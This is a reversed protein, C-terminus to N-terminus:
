DNDKSAEAESDNSHYHNNESTAYQFLNAKKKIKCVEWNLKESMESLTLSECLMPVKLLYLNQLNSQIFKRNSLWSGILSPLPTTQTYSTRWWSVHKFVQDSSTM